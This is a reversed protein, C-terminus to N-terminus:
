QLVISTTTKKTLICTWLKVHKWIVIIILHKHQIQPLSTTSKWNRLVRSQAKGYDSLSGTQLTRNVLWYSRVLTQLIRCLVRCWFWCSFVSGFNWCNKGSLSSSPLLLISCSTKSWLFVLLKFTAISTPVKTVEV